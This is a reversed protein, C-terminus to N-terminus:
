VGKFTAMAGKLRQAEKYTCRNHITQLGYEVSAATAQENIVGEQLWFIRPKHQMQKTDNLVEMAYQPARFVQVVDVPFPIEQLSRYVQEGLIYDGKPSVPIIRYGLRQMKRSVRYSPRAPNDSLGVVAVVKPRRVGDETVFGSNLVWRIVGEDNVIIQGEGLKEEQAGVGTAVRLANDLDAILDQANEVGVSVRILDDGVGAAVRQQPTLQQHTTSAPHIVLSKSDGVNALHSFLSVNDIFKAGAELGGKVGFVLMGAFGGKLYKQARAYTPHEPLGPYQVWAVAPHQKLFEAM